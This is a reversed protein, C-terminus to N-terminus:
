FVYSVKGRVRDDSRYLNMYDAGGNSAGASASGIADGGVGVQWHRDYKYLLDLSLLVGSVTFEYVGRGALEFHKLEDGVLPVSARLSAASRYPYRSEFISVGPVALPGQDPSAGGWSYLYSASVHSANAGRGYAEWDLSASALVAPTIQETTWFGPTHDAVPREGMVSLWGSWRETTYGTELSAVHHYVVRPHLTVEVDQNAPFLYGEYGLMIRTVPEYLYSVKGWAGQSQGVRVLGGASPHMVVDRLISTNDLQYHVPLNGGFMSIQSPPPIIFRNSSTLSGNSVSMQAGLEPIYFPSGFAVARVNSTEKSVFLGTLGVVDPTLVNWRFLPQWMGLKWYEDLKNWDELKRGLQVRIGAPGALSGVHAERVNLYRANTHSTNIDGEADGAMEWWSMQKSGKGSLLLSPASNNPQTSNSRYAESYLSVAGSDRPGTEYMEAAMESAM